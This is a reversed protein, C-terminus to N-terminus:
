CHDCYDMFDQAAELQGEGRGGRCLTDNGGEGRCLTDNGGQGRCLTTMAGECHMM